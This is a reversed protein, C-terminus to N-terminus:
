TTLSAGWAAAEASGAGGTIDVSEVATNPSPDDTGTAEEAPPTIFEILPSADPRLGVVNDMWTQLAALRDDAAKANLGGWGWVRNVPFSRDNSRLVAGCSARLSARLTCFESYKTCVEWVEVGEARPYIRLTYATDEKAGIAAAEDAVATPTIKVKRVQWAPPEAAPDVVETTEAVVPTAAAPTTTPEPKPAPPAATDEAAFRSVPENASPEQLVATLWRELGVRRETNVKASSGGGFMSLRRVPYEVKEFALPDIVILKARLESFDSFRRYVTWEEGTQFAEGGSAAVARPFVTIGFATYQESSDPDTRTVVSVMRVREVAVVPGLEEVPEEAGSAGAATAPQKPATSEKAILADRLACFDSFRTDVKWHQGILM